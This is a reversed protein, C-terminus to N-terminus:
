EGQQPIQQMQMQQQMQQEQKFEEYKLKGAEVKKEINKSGLLQAKQKALDDIMEFYIYYREMDGSELCLKAVNTLSLVSNEINNIKTERSIYGVGANISVSMIIKKSRDFGVFDTHTEYKYILKLMRLLLPQLWSESLSTIIDDTTVNANDSLLTQGTASNPENGTSIGQAFKPMGGIEQIEEDLKNTDFISQNINPVPLERIQELNNVVIKTQNGYLDDDRLGTSRTTLFRPNLQQSIADMQQNRMKIYQSQVPIMPAIYSDGYARVAQAEELGIFQPYIIGFIFPCGDNLKEDTRLFQEAGIITSVYWDNGILRYVEEVEVRAYDGLDSSQESLRNDSLSNQGIAEEFKIGRSKGKYQKKLDAVTMYFRDVFYKADFHNRAYPDILIENLSRNQVVLRDRDGSWYVKTITTGYILVDRINPRVLTYLNMRKDSYENLRKQMVKTLREDGKIEVQALEENAFFTKMIDREIKRVKAKIVQQTLHSKRRRKLSSLQAQEIQAIYGAELVRFEDRVRQYGNIAEDKLKIIQEQKKNLAKM